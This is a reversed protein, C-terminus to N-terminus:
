CLLHRPPSGVTYMSICLLYKNTSLVPTASSTVRLIVIYLCTLDSFWRQKLVWLSPWVVDLIPTIMPGLLPGRELLFHFLLKLGTRFQLRITFSLGARIKTSSMLVMGTTDMTDWRIFVKKNFRSSKCVPNM